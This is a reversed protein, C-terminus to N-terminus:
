AKARDLGWCAQFSVFVLRSHTPTVLHSESLTIESFDRREIVHCLSIKAQPKTRVQGGNATQRKIFHLLLMQSERWVCWKQHFDTFGKHKRINKQSFYFVFCSLLKPLHWPLCKLLISTSQTYQYEYWAGREDFWWFIEWKGISKDGCVDRNRLTVSPQVNGRKEEKVGANM